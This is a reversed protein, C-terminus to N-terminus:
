VIESPFPPVSVAVTVTVTPPTLSAGTATSSVAVVGSSVAIVSFGSALSVSGSPSVRDITPVGTEALPPVTVTFGFPM